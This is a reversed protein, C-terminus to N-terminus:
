SAIEAQLAVIEERSLGSIAMIQEIPFKMALCKKTIAITNQKIGQQKGLTKCKKEADHYAEAYVTKCAQDYAKGYAKDVARNFLYDGITGKKFPLLGDFKNEIEKQMEKKDEFEVQSLIYSLMAEIYDDSNNPLKELMESLTEFSTIIDGLARHKYIFGLPGSWPHKILDKDQVNKVDIIRYPGFLWQKAFNKYQDFLEFLDVTSGISATGTYFVFPYILPLYKSKKQDLHQRIIKTQYELLRFAILYDETSQHEVLIYLYASRDNQLFKAKYLVDVQSKKLHKDVFSDKCFTLSKLDISKVVETPLYQSFFDKAVPLHAMAHRFLSDHPHHIN